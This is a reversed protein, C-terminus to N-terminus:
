LCAAPILPLAQMYAPGPRQLNLYANKQDAVHPPTFGRLPRLGAPTKRLGLRTLRRLAYLGMSSASFTLKLSNRCNRNFGPNRLENYYL